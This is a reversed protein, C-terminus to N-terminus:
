DSISKYWNLSAEPLSIEGGQEEKYRKQYDRIGDLEEYFKKTFTKPRDWFEIGIDYSGSSEDPQVHKVKGIIFFMEDGLKFKLIVNSSVALARRASIM